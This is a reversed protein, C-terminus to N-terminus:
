ADRKSHARDIAAGEADAPADSNQKKADLYGVRRHEIEKANLKIFKRFETFTAESLMAEEIHRHVGTEANLMAILDVVKDWVVTRSGYGFLNRNLAAAHIELFNLLDNFAIKWAALETSAGVLAHERERAERGFEQLARLDTARGTRWIQYGTFFLGVVAAVGTAATAWDPSAL